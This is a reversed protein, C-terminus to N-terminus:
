IQERTITANNAAVIRLGNAAVVENFHGAYDARFSAIVARIMATYAADTVGAALAPAPTASQLMLPFDDAVWAHLGIHSTSTANTLPVTYSPAGWGMAAAVADGTAVHALPLILVASLM